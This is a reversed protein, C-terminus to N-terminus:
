QGRVYTLPFLARIDCAQREMRRLCAITCARLLRTTSRIEPRDMGQLTILSLM